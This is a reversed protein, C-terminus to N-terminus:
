IALEEGTIAFYLNQLQHVYLIRLRKVNPKWVLFDFTLEIVSDKSSYGGSYKEFGFKILLEETLRIPDVYWVDNESLFLIDDATCAFMQGALNPKVMVDQRYQLLNGVRLDKANM